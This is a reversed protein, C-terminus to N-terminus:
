NFYKNSLNFAFQNEVSLAPITLEVNTGKVKESNAVVAITITGNQGATAANITITVDTNLVLKDADNTLDLKTNLADLVDQQSTTNSIELEEETFTINSIDKRTNQPNSVTFTVDISGQNYVKSEANVIVTAGETTINTIEIENTKLNSNVSETKLVGLVQDKSPVKAAEQLDINGLSTISLDTALDVKDVQPNSVTFTVDISGQNYVKSEANVIVTAGETTINTIEIESTKLNSNVSETKLVGLVQDKSPVKAAEQLDINGLSTISLDTALDVKDVQPNSVTFTVDISGQNYVKSEANVIVTAGETTINTIEIENTKLNSNVSETKLVGLVQDKSPVKAAEQLDINGLSTISLDTALDVKDVQPNSVTFTVDISGQNYVKSEANVIVTAGETTINTIEIESTKLNSNVSETKLVGLVQDKSPVKAAEQLDINGLSTISLDTALDVKDVQPNSVTFTVDISGQNYVKSEANVIVTAGETTINTIEIENTKLNSNVSETKLVGLVQDKSPVKAAEQLDINGLSTISLDTALDVKDVQPNSVTFTVDISGQNYVKSEANVIVTAGETTINTIEIESTKLNSNVSETKLVGLVQDKSPVKAAEQLDINGLSTISLDTALDVKDVQPNSVTFTVDISGQNYVKSEANVIVTAGETTINTIEIENTKLNSNVSETKLVGLVQDKSPVKAAEQLDINGLSTISLDTALDVKDVQPNSVTFTVDISGQNYVKSEANVIVTAGETTINTIEIESTKLNSNVSETKLVGLVQDKSPVKAAEQLDINGLSTISLDTALDILPVPLVKVTFTVEVGAASTDKYESDQGAKIIASKSDNSLTGEVNLGTTVLGLNKEVLADLINQESLTADHAVEIEELAKTKIVSSLEERDDAVTVKIAIDTKGDWSDLIYGDDALVTVELTKDESNKLVSKEIATISKIGAITKAQVKHIAAQLTAFEQDKVENELAAVVEDKNIPTDKKGISLTISTKGDKIDDALVYGTKAEVVVNFTVNSYGRTVATADKISFKESTLGKIAEVAKENTEYHKDDASLTSLLQDVDAKAVAIDAKGISLTISTKGDKIDDALVYGTKAEVVVNFM